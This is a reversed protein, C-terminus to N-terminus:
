EYEAQLFNLMKTAPHATSGKLDCTALIYRSENCCQNIEKLARIVTIMYAKFPWHAERMELTKNDGFILAWLSVAQAGVNQSKHECQKRPWRRERRWECYGVWGLRRRRGRLWGWREEEEVCGKLKKHHTDSGARVSTAQIQVSTSNKQFINGYERKGKPMAKRGLSGSDDM